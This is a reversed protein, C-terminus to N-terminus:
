RGHISSWRLTSLFRLPASPYRWVSSSNPSPCRTRRRRRRRNPPSQQRPRRLPPPLQAQRGSCLPRKPCLSLRFRRWSSRLSRPQNQSRGRQPSPLHFLDAGFLMLFTTTGQQCLTCCSASSKNFYTCAICSWCEEEGEEKEVGEEEEEGEEPDQKPSTAGESTGEDRFRKTRRVVGLMGRTCLIPSCAPWTVFVFFFFSFFPL